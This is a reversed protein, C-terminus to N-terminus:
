RPWNKMPTTTTSANPSRKEGTLYARANRGHLRLYGLHPNTVTDLPPMVNSNDSRPADVSVFSARHNELFKMTRSLQPGIVWNRNRLEVALSRPALQDLLPGLEELDNARPSFGPSLQLLLVGLKRAAELPAIGKLFEEIAAREIEENLIM